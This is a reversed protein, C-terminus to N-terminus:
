WPVNTVCFGSARLRALYLAGRLDNRHPQADVDVVHRRQPLRPAPSIWVRHRRGRQGLQAAGVLDRQVHALVAPVHVIPIEFDQALRHVARQIQLHGRHLLHQLQRERVPRIGGRQNRLPTLLQGGLAAQVHNRIALFDPSNCTSQPVGAHLNRQEDIWLDLLDLGAVAGVRLRDLQVGAAVAVRARM